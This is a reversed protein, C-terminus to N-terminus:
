KILKILQNQTKGNAAIINKTDIQWDQGKLDTVKGGAEKIILVGAAFDWPKSGMDIFGDARGSAVYCLELSSAGWFRFTRCLKGIERLIKHFKIFNEKTRGKNMLILAKSLAQQKGAKIRRGNLFSGGGKEAFYLEKEAPNFVVGLIPNKRYLLAISTSFFPFGAVYNTTGDLPDIVWTYERGIEGGTEESLIDHSPFNKKILKIIVKEAELDIKTILSSDKKLSIKFFKRFNKELVKGAEKVAQLAVKKFNPNIKM